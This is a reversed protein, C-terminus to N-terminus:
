LGRKRYTTPRADAICTGNPDGVIVHYLQGNVNVTRDIIVGHSDIDQVPIPEGPRPDGALSSESRTRAAQPKAGLNRLAQRRRREQMLARYRRYRLWVPYSRAGITWALWGALALLLLDIAHM